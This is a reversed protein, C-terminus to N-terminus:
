MSSFSSFSNLKELFHETIGPFSYNNYRKVSERNFDAILFSAIVMPITHTHINPISLPNNFIRIFLNIPFCAIFTRSLDTPIRKCTAPRSAPYNKWLDPFM